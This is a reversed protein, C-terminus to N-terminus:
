KLALLFSKLMDIQASLRELATHAYDSDFYGLPFAFVYSANMDKIINELFLKTDLTLGAPMQPYVTTAIATDSM